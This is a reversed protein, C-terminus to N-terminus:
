ALLLNSIYLLTYYFYKLYWLRISCMEWVWGGRENSYLTGVYYILIRALCDIWWIILHYIIKLGKVQGTKQTKLM